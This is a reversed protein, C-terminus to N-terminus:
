QDRWPCAENVCILGKERVHGCKCRQFITQHAAWMDRLDRRQQELMAEFADLESVKVVASEGEISTGQFRGLRRPAPRKARLQDILEEDAQLAANLHKIRAKNKDALGVIQHTLVRIQRAVEVLADDIEMAQTAAPQQQQTTADM